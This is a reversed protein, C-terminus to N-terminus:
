PRPSKWRDIASPVYGALALIEWLLCLIMIVWILQPFPAPLPLYTLLWAALGLVIVLVLIRIM